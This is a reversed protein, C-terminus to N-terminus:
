RRVEFVGEGEIPAILESSVRRVTADPPGQWCWDVLEDVDRADGQAEIEVSGDPLNRVWGTLELKRAAQQASARFFVGQVTGQVVARIRTNM